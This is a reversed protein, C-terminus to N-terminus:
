VPTLFAAARESGDGSCWILPRFTDSGACRVTHAALCTLLGGMAAGVYGVCDAPHVVVGPVECGASVLRNVACGWEAAYYSEGTLTCYVTTCVGGLRAVKSAIDQVCTALAAGTSPSESSVTASERSGAVAGLRALAPAGRSTASDAHELVVFAAAEGPVLGNPQEPTKLRRQSDL